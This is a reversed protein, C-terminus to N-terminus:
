LVHNRRRIEEIVKEPTERVTSVTDDVTYILTNGTFEISEIKVIHAPNIYVPNYEGDHLKIFDAM